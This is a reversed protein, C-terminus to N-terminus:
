TIRIAQGLNAGPYAIDAVLQLPGSAAHRAEHAGGVPSLFPHRVARRAAVGERAGALSRLRSAACARPRRPWREGCWAVARPAAGDGSFHGGTSCARFRRARLALSPRPRPLGIHHRMASVTSCSLQLRDAVQRLTLAREDDM